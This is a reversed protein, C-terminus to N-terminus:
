DNKINAKRDIFNCIENLIAEACFKKNIPPFNKQFEDNIHFYKSVNQVSILIENM